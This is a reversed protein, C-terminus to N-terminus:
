ADVHVLVRNWIKSTQQSYNFSQIYGFHCDSYLCVAAIYLPSMICLPPLVSSKSIYYLIRTLIRAVAAEEYQQTSANRVFAVSFLITFTSSSCTCVFWHICVALLNRRLVLLWFVLSPSPPQLPRPIYPHINLYHSAFIVSLSPYSLLFSHLFPSSSFSLSSSPFTLLNSTFLSLPQLLVYFFFFSLCVSPETSNEQYCKCGHLVYCAGRHAGYVSCLILSDDHHYDRCLTSQWSTTLAADAHCKLTKYPVTLM